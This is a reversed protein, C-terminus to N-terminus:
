SFAIYVALIGFSTNHRTTNRTVLWCSSTHADNHKHTYHSQAAVINEYKSLNVLRKCVYARECMWLANERIRKCPITPITHINHINQTQKFLALTHAYAEIAFTRTDIAYPQAHMRAGNARPSVLQIASSNTNQGNSAFHQVTSHQTYVYAHTHPM